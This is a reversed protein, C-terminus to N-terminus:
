KDKRLTMITTDAKKFEGIEYGKDIILEDVLKTNYGGKRISKKISFRLGNPLEYFVDASHVAIEEKYGAELEKIRKDIIAKDEKLIFLETFLAVKDKSKLKKYDDTVAM